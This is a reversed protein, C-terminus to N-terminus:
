NQDESKARFFVPAEPNGHRETRRHNKLNKDVQEKENSSM